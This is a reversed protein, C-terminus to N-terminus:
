VFLMIYVKKLHTLHAHLAGQLAVMGAEWKYGGSQVHAHLDRTQSDADIEKCEM